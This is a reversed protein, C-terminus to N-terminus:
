VEQLKDRLQQVAKLILPRHHALKIWRPLRIAIGHHNGKRGQRERITASIYSELFDLHAENYAWLVEGCCPVQLWLPLGFLPDVAGNHKRHETWWNGTWWPMPKQQKAVRSARRTYSCHPCAIQWTLKQDLCRSLVPRDCRPCKVWIAQEFESLCTTYDRFRFVM